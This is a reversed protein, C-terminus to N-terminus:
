SQTTEAVTVPEAAGGASNREGRADWHGPKPAKRRNPPKRLVTGSTRAVRSGSHPRPTSNARPRCAACRADDSLWNTRAPSGTATIPSVDSAATSPDHTSAGALRNEIYLESFVADRDIRRRPPRFRLAFLNASSACPRRENEGAGDSPAPRCRDPQGLGAEHGGGARDRGRGLDVAAEVKETVDELLDAGVLTSFGSSCFSISAAMLPM